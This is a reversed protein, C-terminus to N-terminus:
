RRGGLWAVTEAIGRGLSFPTRGFKELTKKMPVIYDTTMSRYRQTTIFFRRGSIKSYADGFLALGFLLYRPVKRAPKGLYALSFGSAWEWIDGPEDGLYYVQGRAEPEPLDMIRLMQWVANGVYGYCRIVPKGGPHLYWGKQVIKWFEQPYRPHFSGWINTPRVITWCCQLGAKRTLQEAKAKSQGYVTEPNFDEDHAPLHGPRCVYQSSVIILRKVSPAARVAELLLRTGETNPLYGDEVTTNEDCDIRAALHLVRDPQFQQFVEKLRAADLIDGREWYPKHAPRKPPSIDYNCVTGGESIITDVLHTGIFGSGGTVLYKM